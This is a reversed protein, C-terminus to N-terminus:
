FIIGIIIMLAIFIVLYFFVTFVLIHGKIFEEENKRKCVDCLEIYSLTTNHDGTYKEIGLKKIKREVWWEGFFKWNM